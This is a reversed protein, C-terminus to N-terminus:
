VPLVETAVLQSRAEAAYVIRLLAEAFYMSSQEMTSRHGIGSDVWLSGLVLSEQDAPAYHHPCSPVVAQPVMAASDEAPKCVHQAVRNMRDAEAPALVDALM